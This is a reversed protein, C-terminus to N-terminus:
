KGHVKGHTKRTGEEKSQRKGSKQQPEGSSASNMLQTLSNVVNESSPLSKGPLKKGAQECLSRKTNLQTMSLVKM